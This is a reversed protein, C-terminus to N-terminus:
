TCRTKAIPLGEVFRKAIEVFDRSYGLYELKEVIEIKQSLNLCCDIYWHENLPLGQAPKNNTVKSDMTKHNRTKVALTSYNKELNGTGIRKLLYQLRAQQSNRLKTSRYIGMRGPPPATSEWNGMAIILIMELATTFSVDFSSPIGEPPSDMIVKVTLQNMDM